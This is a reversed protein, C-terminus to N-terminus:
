QLDRKKPIRQNSDLRGWEEPRSKFDLMTLFPEQVQVSLSADSLQLNQFVLNLLERKEDPESSEFIEKTRKALNMVLNASVYFNQDAKEHLAMKEIIEVQQAKYTAVRELYMKEDIIGDLKDDYIQNLRKQIRDQDKRLALLSETHFLSESEHIKKLYSTVDSIQKETLAINSFYSSLVEMLPEERVYLRKCTGKANTCSYYIYRQKKIEPTVVCGCHSCTILGRLVFPRDVTKHPKKHYGATITQVQQYLTPSILSQYHHETLGYKTKMMGCYFPNKLIESVQSKAIKQGKKSTFGLEAIENKLKLLSYTGTAYLEFLKTIFHAKEPDPIITKEGAENLTHKYGLPALGIWTGNKAAQEKSRKVNDSLQLVYSRSFMVGMDWRLIDSSNSKLNLILGERMFHIEVKGEKRLDELVVSEKFSRQVRDITDAVLAITEKTKRIRDLIKEFEKRTEKTSSETIKFVEDIILGKRESYERLRREQAPISQGDEQEKSSVRALLIAKM